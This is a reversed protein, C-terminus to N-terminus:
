GGIAVSGDQRQLSVQILLRSCHPEPVEPNTVNSSVSFLPEAQLHHPIGSGEGTGMCKGGVNYM